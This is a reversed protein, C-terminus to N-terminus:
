EPEESDSDSGDEEEIVELFSANLYNKSNIKFWLHDSDVDNNM